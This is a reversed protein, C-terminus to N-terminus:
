TLRSGMIGIKTNRLGVRGAAKKAKEGEILQVQAM